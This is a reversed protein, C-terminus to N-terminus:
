FKQSKKNLKTLAIESNRLIESNNMEKAFKITEQYFSVAKGQNNLYENEVAMNFSAVMKLYLFGQYNEQYNQSNEELNLLKDMTELHELAQTILNVSNEHKRLESCIVAQNLYTSIINQVTEIKKPSSKLQQNELKLAHSVAKYAMPFNKRKRHVCSLNNFAMIKIEQLKQLNKEFILSIHPNHLLDLCKCFLRLENESHSASQNYTELIKLNISQAFAILRSEPSFDLNPSSPSSSLYDLTLSLLKEELLLHKETENKDKHLLSLKNLLNLPDAM